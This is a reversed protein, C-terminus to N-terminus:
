RTSEFDDNTKGKDRTELSEQLELANQIAMACNGDETKVSFPGNTRYIVWHPEEHRVRLESTTGAGKSGFVGHTRFVVASKKGLTAFISGEEDEVFIRDSGVECKRNSTDCGGLHFPCTIAVAVAFYVRRGRM